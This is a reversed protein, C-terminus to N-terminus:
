GHIIAENETTERPVIAQARAVTDYLASESIGLEKAKERVTRVSKFWQALEAAQEDTLARRRTM